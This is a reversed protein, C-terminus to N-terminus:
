ILLKEAPSTKLKEMDENTLDPLPKRRRRSCIGFLELLGHHGAGGGASYTSYLFQFLPMDYNEIDAV